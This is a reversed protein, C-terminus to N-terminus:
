RDSLVFLGLAAAVGIAVLGPTGIGSTTSADTTDASMGPDIPMVPASDPVGANQLITAAYQQSSSYPGNNALAGPGQNYAILATNWDGYQGYLQALYKAGADANQQPNFPDSVGLSKGTAPMLQLLGQAGAPSVANPNYRSESYAVSQLINLPVGSSQSANQLVSNIDSPPPSYAGLGVPIIM